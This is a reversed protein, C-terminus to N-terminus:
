LTGERVRGCDAVVHRWRAADAVEAPWYLRHWEDFGRAEEVVSEALTDIAVVRPADDGAGYDLAIDCSGHRAIPLVFTFDLQPFVEALNTLEFRQLAMQYPALLRM